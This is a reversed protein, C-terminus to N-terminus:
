KKEVKDKYYLEYLKRQIFDYGEKGSHSITCTSCDKIGNNLYKYTGKCDLFFLPCYCALCNFNQEDIRKHCPFAFCKVNQFFSFDNEM